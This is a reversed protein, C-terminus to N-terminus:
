EGCFEGKMYAKIKDNTSPYHRKVRIVVKGKKHKIKSVSARVGLHKLHEVFYKGFEVSPVEIDIDETVEKGGAVKEITEVMPILISEGLKTAEKELEKGKLRLEYTQFSERILRRFFFPQGYDFFFKFAYRLDNNTSQNSTYKTQTKMDVDKIVIGERKSDGLKRVLKLIKEHDKSSFIGFNHVGKLDYKGLMKFKEKFTLPKNTKRDRIDFIFYGFEKAEPYSKMQYPNQLGVIEGCLMLNPYDDFFKNDELESSLRKTTYPCILGGRTLAVFEGNIKAVRIHYGDMKEEVYFKKDKFCKKLGNGLNMIRRIKPFGRMYELKGNVFFVVSGEKAQQVDKKFRLYPFVNGVLYVHNKKYHEKLKKLDIKLDKSIKPLYNEIKEM